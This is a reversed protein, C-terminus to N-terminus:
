DQAVGQNKCANYAHNDRSGGNEGIKAIKNILFWHFHPSTFVAWSIIHLTDIPGIYVPKIISFYEKILQVTQRSWKPLSFFNYSQLERSLKNQVKILCNKFQTVKRVIFEPSWHPSFWPYFHKKLSDVNAFNEFKKNQFHLLLTFYMLTYGHLYCLRNFSKGLTFSIYM